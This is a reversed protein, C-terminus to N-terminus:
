GTGFGPNEQHYASLGFPHTDPLKWLFNWGFDVLVLFKNSAFIFGTVAKTFFSDNLKISM